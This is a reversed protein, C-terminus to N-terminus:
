YLHERLKLQGLPLSKGYFSFSKDQCRGHGLGAYEVVIGQWQSNEIKEEYGPVVTDADYLFANELPTNESILHVRMEKHRCHLPRITCRLTLTDAIIKSEEQIHFTAPHAIELVGEDQNLGIFGPEYGESLPTYSLIRM